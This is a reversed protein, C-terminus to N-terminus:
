TTTWIEDVGDFGLYNRTAETLDYERGHVYPGRDVVTVTTSRGQYRVTLRHGCGALPPRCRAPQQLLDAWLRHPQRLLRARLLVRDRDLLHLAAAHLEAFWRRPQGPAGRGRFYGPRSPYWHLYFKGDENTWTRDVETYSGDRLLLELVVARGPRAIPTYGRVLVRRGVLLHRRGPILRV